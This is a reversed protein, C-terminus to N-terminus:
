SVIRQTRRRRPGVFSGIPYISPNSNILAAAREAGGSIMSVNVWHSGPSFGWFFTDDTLLNLTDRVDTRWIPSVTNHDVVEQPIGGLYLGNWWRLTTIRNHFRVWVAVNASHAVGLSGVAFDDIDSFREVPPTVSYDTVRVGRFMLSESLLPMMNAIWWAIAGGGVGSCYEDTVSGFRAQLWLRNVVVSDTFLRHGFEVAILREGAVAPTPM